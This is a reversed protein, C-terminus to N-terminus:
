ALATDGTEGTRIRVANDVSTIFIKGDGVEGTQCVEIIADTLKKTQHDPVILEIKVKPLFYEKYQTGRFQHTVGRQKGHGKLETVMVGPYGVKELSQRLAELMEPRIVAELRKM